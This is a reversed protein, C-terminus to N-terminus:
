FGLHLRRSFPQFPSVRGLCLSPLLRVLAMGVPLFDSKPACPMNRCVCVSVGVCVCLDVSLSLPLFECLTVSLSDFIPSVCVCVCVCLCVRVRVCESVTMSGRRLFLCGWAAATAVPNSGRGSRGETSLAAWPGAPRGMRSIGPARSRPLSVRVADPRGQPQSSASSGESEAQAKLLRTLRKGRSRADPSLGSSGTSLDPQLRPAGVGLCRWPPSRNALRRPTTETVVTPLM